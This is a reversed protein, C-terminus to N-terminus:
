HGPPGGPTTPTKERKVAPMLFPWVGTLLDHIVRVRYFGRDLLLLQIRLGWTILRARLTRLVQAMPQQARVRGMAM